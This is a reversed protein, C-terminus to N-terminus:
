FNFILNNLGNILGFAIFGRAVSRFRRRDIALKKRVGRGGALSGGDQRSRPSPNFRRAIGHAIPFATAVSARWSPIRLSCPTWGRPRDREITRLRAIKATPGFSRGRMRDRRKRPSSRITKNSSEVRNYYAGSLFGFAEARVLEVALTPSPTTEILEPM